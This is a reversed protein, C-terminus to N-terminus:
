HAEFGFQVNGPYNEFAPVSVKVVLSTGPGVTVSEGGSNCTNGGNPVTCSIVTVVENAVIAVTAAGVPCCSNPVYVALNSITVPANPTLTEVPTPSSGAKAVGDIAGYTPPATLFADLLSGSHFSAKVFASSPSGGLQDADAAHGAEASRDASPVTGLTAAKIDSGTLSEDAVKSGNVANKKIQKTGVSNKPLKAAAYAGGGLLIFLCLTSVVNSYTLRPRLRRKM